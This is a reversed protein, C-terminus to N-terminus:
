LSIQASERPTFRRDLPWLDRLADTSPWLGTGLGALYAAGRPGAGAHDRAAREVPRGTRDAQLQCLLDDASAPGDVRVSTLVPLAALVDGVGSAVAEVSEGDAAPATGELAFADRGAPSRWAATTLLGGDSRVPEAGTHTVITSAAAYTCQTDGADFCARGVLAAPGHGALGTVPLSLGLFSRPDTTAVEGWSPVIEPLADRPVGFLACLEDSWDGTTLDLLLTRSANSVDTVHEVGRTMRAVLYSGASGVAYRDAEVLGWTRPEHEALWTLRTAAFRPDLPLGTLARVRAEHGEARLRACVQTTRRDQGGIARRPAGLTERDWLLLTDRQDTIGIGTLGAADTRALVQRVAELTAQWIEEPAHEVCGPEPHHQALDRRAHSRISGDVDVVVATVGTSGADIGLVPSM